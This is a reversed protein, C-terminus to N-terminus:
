YEIATGALAAAARRDLKGTPLVPLADVVALRRPRAHLALADHWRALAARRDFRADVAIAAGVLQGWRPDAIAFAVAARVGPTAALAAEVTDPHVNEGGTIIM